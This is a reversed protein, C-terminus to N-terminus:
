IGRISNYLFFMTSLINLRPSNPFSKLSTMRILSLLFLKTAWSPLSLLSHNQVISVWSLISQSFLAVSLLTFPLLTISLLPLHAQILAPCVVLFRSQWEPINGSLAQVIIISKSTFCREFSGHQKKFVTM